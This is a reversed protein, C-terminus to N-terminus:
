RSGYLFLERGDSTVIRDLRLIRSGDTFRFGTGTIVDGAKLTDRDWGNNRMRNLSPGGVEWKEVAGDDNRVDLDIMVHPNSWRYGTVTGEVTVETSRNVPWRHHSSLPVAAILLATAGFALAQLRTVM